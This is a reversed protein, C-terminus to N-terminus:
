GDVCLTTIEGDAEKNWADNSKLKTIIDTVNFSIYIKTEKVEKIVSGSDTKIFNSGIFDPSFDFSVKIAYEDKNQGYLELVPTGKNIILQAFKSPDALVEPAMMAHRERKLISQVQSKPVYKTLEIQLNQDLEGWKKGSKWVNIMTENHKYLKEKLRTKERTRNLITYAIEKLFKPQKLEEISMGADVAYLVPAPMLMLLIPVFLIVRILNLRWYYSLSM